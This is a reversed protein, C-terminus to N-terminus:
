RARMESHGHVTVTHPLGPYNILTTFTYQTDVTVYVQVDGTACAATCDVPTGPSGDASPCRCGVVAATINSDTFGAYHADQVAAARIRPPYMDYMGYQTGARAANTTMISFYFVRGLDAVGLCLLLLVPALLTLEIIANGRQQHRSWRGTAQGPQRSLGQHRTAPLM